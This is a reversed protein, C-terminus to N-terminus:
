PMENELFSPFSNEALRRFRCALRGREGFSCRKVYITEINETWKM